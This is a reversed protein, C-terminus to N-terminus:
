LGARRLENGIKENTQSLPNVSRMVNLHTM